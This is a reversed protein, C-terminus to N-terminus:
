GKSLVTAFSSQRSVSEVVDQLDFVGNTTKTRCRHSDSRCISSM